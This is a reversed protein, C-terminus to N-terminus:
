ICLGHVPVGPHYNVHACRRSLLVNCVSGRTARNEINLKNAAARHVNVNDRKLFQVAFNFEAVNSMRIVFFCSCPKGTGCQENSSKRATVRSALKESRSPSACM